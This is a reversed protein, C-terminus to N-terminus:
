KRYNSYDKGEKKKAVFVAVFISLLALSCIVVMVIGSINILEENKSYERLFREGLISLGALIFMPFIVLTPHGPRRKRESFFSYILGIILVIILITLTKLSMNGVIYGM